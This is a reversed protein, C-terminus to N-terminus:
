HNKLFLHNNCHYGHSCYSVQDALGHVAGARQGNAHSFLDADSAGGGSDSIFDDAGGGMGM